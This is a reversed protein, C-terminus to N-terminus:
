QNEYRLELIRNAIMKDEILDGPIINYIKRM